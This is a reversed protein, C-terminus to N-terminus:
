RLTAQISLASSPMLRRIIAAATAAVSPPAGAAACTPPVLEGDGSPTVEGSPIPGPPATPGTPTGRPAVSSAVGPTLGVVDFGDSGAAIAPLLEVHEPPPAPEPMPDVPEVASNSPPPEAPVADPVHEVVPTEDCGAAEAEEGLM